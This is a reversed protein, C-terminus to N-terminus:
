KAAPAATLANITAEYPNVAAPPSPPLGPTDRHLPFVNSEGTPPPAPAAAVIELFDIERTMAEIALHDDPEVTRSLSLADVDVAKKGFRRAAEALHAPGVVNSALAAKRAASLTKGVYYLEAPTPKAPAGAGGASRSLALEGAATTLEGKLRTVEEASRSLVIGQQDLEDALTDLQGHLGVNSAILLDVATDASLDPKNFHARLKALEDDTYTAM